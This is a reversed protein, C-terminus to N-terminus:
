PTMGTTHIFIPNSWAKKGDIDRTIRIRVYQESGATAFAASTVHVFMGASEGNGTIFEISAPEDTAASILTGLIKITMAPGTTAYFNGTAISYLIDGQTLHDAYVMIWAGTSDECHFDDSAVGFVQRGSSLLSDWKSEANGHGTLREVENNFIEIAAYNKLAFMTDLSFGVSYNPHALIALGGDAVASNIIIQSFPSKNHGPIGLTVIHGDLSSEEVSRIFLFSNSSSVNTAHDHDTIALFDYSRSQYRSSVQAPTLCGDSNTTHSHTQGKYINNQPTYPSLLVYNSPSPANNSGCSFISISLAWLFVFVASRLFTRMATESLAWIVLMRSRREM